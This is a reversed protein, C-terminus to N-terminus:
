LRVTDGFICLTFNPLALLFDQTSEEVGMNTNMTYFHISEQTVSMVGKVVLKTAM